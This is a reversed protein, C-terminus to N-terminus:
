AQIMEEQYNVEQLQLELAKLEQNETLQEYTQVNRDTLQKCEM